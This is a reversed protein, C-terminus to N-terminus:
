EIGAYGDGHLVDHVNELYFTLDRKAHWVYRPWRSAWSPDHTEIAVRDWPAYLARGGEWDARFITGAHEGKPRKAADLLSDTELDWMGATPAAQPYGSLEFRLVFEGPAGERPAATVAILANPWSLGILRWHGADLGM